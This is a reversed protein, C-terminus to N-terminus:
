CVGSTAGVDSPCCRDGLTAVDAEGLRVETRGVGEPGEEQSGRGSQAVNSAGGNSRTPDSWGVEESRLLMGQPMWAVRQPV